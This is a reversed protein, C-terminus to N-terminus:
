KVAAGRKKPKVNGAAFQLASQATKANATKLYM